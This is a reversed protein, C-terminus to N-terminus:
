RRPPKQGAAPPLPPPEEAGVQAKISLSLLPSAVEVLAAKTLGARRDYTGTLMVVRGTHPALDLPAGGSGEAGATVSVPKDDIGEVQEANTFLVIVQSAGTVVGLFCIEEASRCPFIAPAPQAPAPPAAKPASPRAQQAKASVAFAALAVVALVIRMRAEMM